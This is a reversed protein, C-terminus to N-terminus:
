KTGGFRRIEEGNAKFVAIEQTNVNRLQYTLEKTLEDTFSQEFEWKENTPSLWFVRVGKINEHIFSKAAAGFDATHFESTSPNEPMDSM